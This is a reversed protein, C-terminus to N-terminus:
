WVGLGAPLPLTLATDLGVQSPYTAVSAVLKSAAGIASIELSTLPQRQQGNGSGQWHPGSALKKLEEYVMFQIAGHSVQVRAARCKQRRGATYLVPCSKCAGSWVMDAGVPTATIAGPASALPLM